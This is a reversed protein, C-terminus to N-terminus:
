TATVTVLTDALFAALSAPSDASAATGNISSPDSASETMEPPMPPASEVDEQPMKPPIVPVVSVFSPVREKPFSKPSDKFHFGEFSSLSRDANPISAEDDESEGSVPLLAAKKKVLAPFSFSVGCGGSSNGDSRSMFSWAESLYSTKDSPSWSRSDLVTGWSFSMSLLLLMGADPSFDSNISRSCLTSSAPDSTTFSVFFFISLSYPIDIEASLTRSINVGIKLPFISAFTDVSAM